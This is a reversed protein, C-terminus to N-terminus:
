RLRQWPCASSLGLIYMLPVRRDAISPMSLCKEWITHADILKKICLPFKVNTLQARFLICCKKSKRGRNLKHFLKSASHTVNAACNTQYDGNPLDKHKSSCCPRKPWSIGLASHSPHVVDVRAFLVNLNFDSCRWLRRSRLSQASFRNLARQRESEIETHTQSICVTLRVCECWLGYM